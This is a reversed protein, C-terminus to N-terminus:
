AVKTDIGPEAVSATPEVKGRIFFLLVIGAIVVAINGQAAIATLAGDAPYASQLFISPDTTAHLLIPWILNGTVRLSLYMLIGFAFTYVLQFGTALPSQGSLLNGSHLLAFLLASVLAVVIERYGGKRMLNVVFGRTLVEEAFGIFLGAVVWAVVVGAGTAGYDITAFRLVNFLLVVAVAIWMWGRGRIPQPGFLERLWGVSWAFVVLLVGGLAIPLATGFWTLAAPDDTSTVLPLFAFSGLQYLAYYAVVLLLARWWGGREWFRRWGNTGRASETTDAHM